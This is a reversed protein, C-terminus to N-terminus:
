VQASRRTWWGFPPAMWDCRGTPWPPWRVCGFSREFYHLEM